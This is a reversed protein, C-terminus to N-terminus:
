LAIKYKNKDTLGEWDDTRFPSAPLGEKNYLNIDDTVDTWGYRVAVPKAVENNWVEIKDGAIKANAWYFKKDAGAIQFGKLAYDNNRVLLGCGVNDFSVIAKNDQFVVSKYLPGMPVVNKGYDNKLANMALRIGVDKKNRPHIDKADGIDTALAMGTNPLQLTKRQADRLEAWGSGNLGNMNGANFSALQVFYFPLNGQNWKSRWDKILLPFLSEYQKAAGSNSEGQYWLFGKIRAQQLPHLMGNYLLSVYIGPENNVNARASEKIIGARWDGALSIKEAGTQLYVDAENGYIGGGGGGDTVKVSIVNNGEKLVDKNIKYIRRENYGNIGGVKVGNVFTEDQDDIMGLSLENANHAQEKTLNIIKRYWLIGDFGPLSQSEWLEPVKLVPLDADDYSQSVWVEQTQPTNEKQFSKIINFLREEKKKALDAFTVGQNSKLWEFDPHTKLSAESIWTEINTGGWSTNVLGIPVGTEAQVKRAFYYGVATFNAATNPRCVAWETKKIDDLPKDSVSRPVLLQRIQPYNANKIEEEAGNTYLLPWEMNSQGSCVWVDGMLIDSFIIENKGKIKLQYPGGQPEANLSVKWKGNKDAITNKDQNKFTVTVREAPLAEGWIIIPQNRQLVMHDSFYNPMKVQAFSITTCTISFVLLVFSYFKKM